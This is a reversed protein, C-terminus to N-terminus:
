GAAPTVRISKLYANLRPGLEEVIHVAHASADFLSHPLKSGCQGVLEQGPEGQPGLKAVVLRALAEKFAPCERCWDRTAWGGPKEGALVDDGPLHQVGKLTLLLSAM